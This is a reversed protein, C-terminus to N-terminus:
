LLGGSKVQGCLSCRVQVLGNPNLLNNNLSYSTVWNHEELFSYSTCSNCYKRHHTYNYQTYNIVHNSTSHLAKFVNLRGGSVCKNAYNSNKDVNNLIINKIQLSSYNSNKALILAATATVYPASFSTGSSLKYISNNVSTSELSYVDQGPAYLDVKTKGFNSYYWINDYSNSAGVSIINNCNFSAPFNAKNYDNDIGSNGASCIVLGNYNDIAKKLLNMSDIRNNKAFEYDQVPNQIKLIENTIPNIDFEEGLSLNLIKINNENAYFIAAIINSIVIDGNPNRVKLSVLDINQCIGSIGINNNSIAGIIGAVFTGHGLEDTPNRDIVNEYPDIPDYLEEAQYIFSCSINRNVKGVLDPHSSDIGSDIVGVKVLSSGTSHNWAEEVQLQNFAYETSGSSYVPDNLSNEFVVTDYVVDEVFPIRSLYKEVYTPNNTIIRYMDNTGDFIKEVSISKNKLLINDLFLNPLDSSSKNIVAILSKVNGPIDEQYATNKQILNFSLLTILFINLQKM